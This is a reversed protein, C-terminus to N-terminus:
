CCPAAGERVRLPRRWSLHCEDLTRDVRARQRRDGRQRRHRTRHARERKGQGSRALEGGVKGRDRTRDRAPVLLDAREPLAELLPGDKVTRKTEAAHDPVGDTELTGYARAPDGLPEGLCRGAGRRHELCPPIGEENPAVGNCRHGGFPEDRAIEGHGLIAEELHRAPIGGTEAGHNGATGGYEAREAQVARDHQQQSTLPVEDPV